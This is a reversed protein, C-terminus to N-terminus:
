CEGGSTLGCPPNERGKTFGYPPIIIDAMNQIITYLMYAASYQRYQWFFMICLEAFGVHAKCSTNNCPILM